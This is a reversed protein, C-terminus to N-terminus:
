LSKASVIERTLCHWPMMVRVPFLTNRIDLRFWKRQIQAWEGKDQLFHRETERISGKPVPLNWFIKGSVEGPQVFFTSGTQRQQLPEGPWLDDQHGERCGNWCTRTKRM